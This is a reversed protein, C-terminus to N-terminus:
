QIIVTIEKDSYEQATYSYIDERLKQAFEANGVLAITQSGFAGAIIAINKGMDDDMACYRIGKSENTDMDIVQVPIQHTFLNLSCVTILSM